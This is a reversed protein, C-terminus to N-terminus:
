RDWTAIHLLQTLTIIVSVVIACLTTGILPLNEGRYGRVKRLLCFSGILFGASSILLAFPYWWFIVMSFFGLGISVTAAGRLVPMANENSQM